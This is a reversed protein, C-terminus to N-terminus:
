FHLRNLATEKLTRLELYIEKKLLEVEHTQLDYFIRLCLQRLM